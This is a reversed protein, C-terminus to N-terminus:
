WSAGLGGSVDFDWRSLGRVLMGIQARAVVPGVFRVEFGNRVRLGASLETFHYDEPNGVGSIGGSELVLAPGASLDTAFWPTCLSGGVTAAALWSHKHHRYLSSRIDRRWALAEAGWMLGRESRDVYWGSLAPTVAHRAAQRVAVPGVALGASRLLVPPPQPPVEPEIEDAEDTQASALSALLAIM